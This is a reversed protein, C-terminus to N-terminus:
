KVPMALLSKEMDTLVKGTARTTSSQIQSIILGSFLIKSQAVMGDKDKPVKSQIIQVMDWTEDVANTFSPTNSWTESAQILINATDILDQKSSYGWESVTKEKKEGAEKTAFLLGENDKTGSAEVLGYKQFTKVVVAKMALYSKKIRSIDEDSAIESIEQSLDKMKGKSIEVGFSM